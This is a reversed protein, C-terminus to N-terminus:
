PTLRSHQSIDSAREEEGQRVSALFCTRSATESGTILFPLAEFTVVASM